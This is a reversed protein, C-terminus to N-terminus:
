AYGRCLIYNLEYAMVETREFRLIGLYVGKSELPTIHTRIKNTM